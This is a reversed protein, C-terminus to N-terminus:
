SKAEEQEKRLSPLQMHLPLNMEEELRLARLTAKKLILNFVDLRFDDSVQKDKWQKLVEKSLRSDVSIVITGTFEIKAVEPSYDLSFSFKINLLEEKTKFMEPKLETIEMLDMKTSVKLDQYQSKLKEVHIKDFNFGLVKM